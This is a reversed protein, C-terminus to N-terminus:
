LETMQKLCDQINAPSYRIRQVESDRGFVIYKYYYYNVVRLFHKRGDDGSREISLTVPSDPSLAGSLDIEAFVENEFSQAQGIPPLLQYEAESLYDEDTLERVFDDFSFQELTLHDGDYPRVTCSMLDDGRFLCKNPLEPHNSLLYWCCTAEGIADIMDKLEPCATFGEGDAQLLGRNVMSNLGDIVTDNGLPSDDYLIGRVVTYGCGHLLIKLQNQTLTYAKGMM